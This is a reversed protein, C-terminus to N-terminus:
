GSRSRTIFGGGVLLDEQYFVAAQGPTVARQPKVFEVRARLKNEPTVLAKVPSATSRIQVLMEQPEPLSPISVWNIEEVVTESAYVEEALGVVVRREEPRLEVVYYPQPAAIGLGKRQGITFFAVGNHKGLVEGKTTVIEGPRASEPSTERLFRQYDNGPIFCVEQSEPKGATPIEKEEALRRVEEKLYDGLPFLSSALQEQDLGFLFYSQDKSRDKGRYLSFRGTHPQREKRAYHGTAIHEAGLSRAKAALVEFKIRRNCVVCPNPTLGKLYSDRFYTVVEKTFLDQLDIVQLPVGLHDAVRRADEEVSLLPNDTRQDEEDRFARYDGVLMVLGFVEYGAELLLYAAVSSDVGGSMAVAVRKSM